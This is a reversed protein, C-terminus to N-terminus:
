FLFLINFQVPDLKFFKKLSSGFLKMKLYTYSSDFSYKVLNM